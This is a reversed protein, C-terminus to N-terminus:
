KGKSKLIKIKWKHIDINIDLPNQCITGAFEGGQGTKTIINKHEGSIIYKGIDSLDKPCERFQFFGNIYEINGFSKIIKLM